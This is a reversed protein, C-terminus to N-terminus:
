LIQHAEIMNKLIYKNIKHEKIEEASINFDLLNKIKLIFKKAQKETSFTHISYGSLLHTVSWENHHNKFLGLGTNKYVYGRERM